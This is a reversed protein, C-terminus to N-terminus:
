FTSNPKVTLGSKQTEGWIWDRDPHGRDQSTLPPLYTINKWNKARLADQLNEWFSLRVAEDSFEQSIESTIYLNFTLQIKVFCCSGKPVWIDNLTIINCLQLLLYFRWLYMLSYCLQSETFVCSWPYFCFRARTPLPGGAECRQCSHAGPLKSVCFNVLLTQVFTSFAM